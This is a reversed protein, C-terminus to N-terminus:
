GADPKLRAYLGLSRSAGLEPHTPVVHSLAAIEWTDVIEYRLSRLTTLLEDYNRIQYPVEAHGFNELTFVSQGARTAVKNLLLHKPRHGLRTLLSQFPVDLYQLLGSALLIHCEPVASLDDVFQLKTLGDAQARERGAQVIAPLDYIWWECGVEALHPRFARYKTGMHGGADLVRPAEPLLKTLWYLVPYDWLALQCMSEYTVPAVSPHNYGALKSSRVARM